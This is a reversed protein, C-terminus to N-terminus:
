RISQELQELQKQYHEVWQKNNNIAKITRLSTELGNRDNYLKKQVHKAYRKKYLRLRQKIEREKEARAAAKKALQQLEYEASLFDTNM